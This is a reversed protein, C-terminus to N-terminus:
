LSTPHRVSGTGCSVQPEPLAPVLSSESEAKRGAGNKRKAGDKRWGKRGEGRHQTTSLLEGWQGTSAMGEQKISEKNQNHMNELLKRLFHALSYVKQKSVYDFIGKCKISLRGSYLKLKWFPQQATQQRKM